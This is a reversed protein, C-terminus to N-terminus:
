PHTCPKAQPQAVTAHLVQDMGQVGPDASEIIKMLPDLGQVHTYSLWFAMKSTM